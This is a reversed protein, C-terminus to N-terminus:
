LDRSDPSRFDRVECRAATHASEQGACSGVVGVGASSSGSTFPATHRQRYPGRVRVGSWPPLRVRAAVTDDDPHAQELINLMGSLGTVLDRSEEIDLRRLASRGACRDLKLSRPLGSRPPTAFGPRWWSQPPSSSLRSPASSSLDSTRTLIREGNGASLTEVVQTPSPVGVTHWAPPQENPTLSLWETQSRVTAPEDPPATSPVPDALMGRLLPRLYREPDLDAVPRHLQGIDLGRLLALILRAHLRPSHSGMSTMLKEYQDTFFLRRRATTVQRVQPITSVELTLRHWALVYRDPETLTARAQRSFASILAQEPDEAELSPLYM